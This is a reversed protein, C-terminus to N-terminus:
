QYKDFLAFYGIHPEEMNETPRGHGHHYLKTTESSEGGGERMGDNFINSINWFFTHWLSYCFYIYINSVMNGTWGICSTTKCNQLM